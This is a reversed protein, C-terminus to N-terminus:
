WPWSFLISSAVLTAVLAHAGNLVSLGFPRKAWIHHNLEMPVSFGAWFLAGLTLVEQLTTPGFLAILHSLIYVSVFTALLGNLMAPKCDACDKETIGTYAMWKKGFVPPSYWIMGIIMSAVTAVLVSLIM